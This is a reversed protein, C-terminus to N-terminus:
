CKVLRQKERVSKLYSEDPKKVCEMINHWHENGKVMYVQQRKEMRWQSGPPLYGVQLTKEIAGGTLQGGEVYIGSPDHVCIYIKVNSDRHGLACIRCANERYAKGNASTGCKKFAEINKTEGCVNCTKRM